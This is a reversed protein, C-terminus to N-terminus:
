AKINLYSVVNKQVKYQENILSLNLSRSNKKIEFEQYPRWKPYDFEIMGTKYGIPKKQM